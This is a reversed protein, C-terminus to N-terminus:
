RAACAQQIRSVDRRKRSSVDSGMRPPQHPASGGTRNGAAPAESRPGRPARAARGAASRRASRCPACAGGSGGRSPAPSRRGPSQRPQECAPGASAPWRWAVLAAAGAPGAGRADGDDAAAHGSEVGGVLQLLGAQARLDEFAGIAGAAAHEGGGVQEAVAEGGLEAALEDVAAM